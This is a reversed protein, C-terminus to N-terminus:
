KTSSYRYNKQGYISNYDYNYDDSVSKISFTNSNGSFFIVVNNSADYDYGTTIFSGNEGIFSFDYFDWSTTEIQDSDYVDFESIKQGSNADFVEFIHSNKVALIKDSYAYQYIYVYDENSYEKILTSTGNNVNIVHYKINDLYELVVFGGNWIDDYSYGGGQIYNDFLFTKVQSNEDFVVLKWSSGKQYYSAVYRSFNEIDVSYDNSSDQWIVDGSLNIYLLDYNSNESNNVKIFFGGRTVPIINPSNAITINKIKTLFDTEFNYIFYSFDKNEENFFYYMVSQGTTVIPQNRRLGGGGASSSSTPTNNTNPGIKEFMRMRQLYEQRARERQEYLAREQSAARQAEAIRQAQMQQWIQDLSKKGSM